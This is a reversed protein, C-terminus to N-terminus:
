KQRIYTYVCRLVCVSTLHHSAPTLEKRGDHSDLTKVSTLLCRERSLWARHTKHACSSFSPTKSVDQHPHCHHLHISERGGGAGHFQWITTRPFLLGPSYDQRDGQDGM